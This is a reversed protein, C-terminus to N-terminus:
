GEALQIPGPPNLPDSAPRSDSAGESPSPASPPSSGPSFFPSAQPTRASQTATSAVGGNTLAMTQAPRFYELIDVASAHAAVTMSDVRNRCIGFFLMSIIAVILGLFTSVLALSIGGALNDAGYAGSRMKAFAAIMGMVTGLLGLLPTINGIINLYEVRRFLRSRWAMAREEVAEQMATFGHRGHRLGITLVDGFMSKSKSVREICGKFQRREVLDRMEKVESEIVMTSRRISWFHEIIISMSWLSMLGIVPGIWGSGMIVIDMFSDKGSIGAPDAAVISSTVLGVTMVAAFLSLRHSRVPRILM